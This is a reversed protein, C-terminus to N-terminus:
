GALRRVTALIDEVSADKTLVENTGSRANKRAVVLGPRPDARRRSSPSRPGMPSLNWSRWTSGRCGARGRM